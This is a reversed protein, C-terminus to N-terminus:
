PKRDKRPQTASEVFGLARGRRREVIITFMVAVLSLVTLGYGAVAVWEYGPYAGFIRRGLVIAYVIVISLFLTAIVWGLLTKFWQRPKGLTFVLFAGLAPAAGALALYTAFDNIAQPDYNM